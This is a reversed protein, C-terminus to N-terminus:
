VAHERLIEVHAAVGAALGSLDYGGELTSVIRGNCCRKAVDCIAQTLWSFDVADWNLQALPDDRHADFGASIFILEPAFAEVRPLIIESYAARMEAGGSNSALPVNLITGHAGTEAEAGTGPYLPMQHSSAFFARSENWLLDQTGNGHHVDFDIIAVRGLGHHDLARKAGIAVNGFLCFGMPVEREAHHGPPRCGVFANGVEGGIVADVAACIGGIGRLAAQYSGPSLSTDADLKAFGQVPVAGKIRDLHSQPHCRLIEAEDGLPAARRDLDMGALADSVAGLRAVREPHGEPMEHQLCDDHSYYATAM